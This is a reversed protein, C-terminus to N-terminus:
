ALLPLPPTITTPSASGPLSSTVSPFASQPTPIMYDDFATMDDLSWQLDEFVPDNSASTTALGQTQEAVSSVISNAHGDLPDDLDDYTARRVAERKQRTSRSPYHCM